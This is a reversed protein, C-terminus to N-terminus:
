IRSSSLRAHSLVEGGACQGRFQSAKSSFACVAATQATFGDRQRYCPQFLEDKNPICIGAIVCETAKVRQGGVCM